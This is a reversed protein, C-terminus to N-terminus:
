DLEGSLIAVMECAVNEFAYSWIFICSNGHYNARVLRCAMIQVLTWGTRRCMYAVIPPSSDFQHNDPESLCIHMTLNGHILLTATRYVWHFEMIIKYWISENITTCDLFTSHADITVRSNSHMKNKKLKVVTCVNNKEDVFSLVLIYLAHQHM